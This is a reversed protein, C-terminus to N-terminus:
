YIFKINNHFKLPKLLIRLLSKHMRLRYFFLYRFEPFKIFLSWLRQNTYKNFVKFDAVLEDGGLLNLLKIIMYVYSIM